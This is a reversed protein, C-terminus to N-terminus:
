IRKLEEVLNTDLSFFFLFLFRRLEQHQHLNGLLTFRKKEAAQKDISDKALGEFM